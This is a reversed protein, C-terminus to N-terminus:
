RDIDDDELPSERRAYFDAGLDRYPKGSRLVQYAIKVLTHAIALIAKRAL